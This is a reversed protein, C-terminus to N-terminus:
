VRLLSFFLKHMSRLLRFLGCVLDRFWGSSEHEFIQERLSVEKKRVAAVGRIGDPENLSYYIKQLRELNEQLKNEQSDIHSELYM